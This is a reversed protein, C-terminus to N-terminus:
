NASDAKIQEVKAKMEAHRQKISQNEKKHFIIQKLLLDRDDMQSLYQIKLEGNKKMLKRNDDDIKQAMTTM